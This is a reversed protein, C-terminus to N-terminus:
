IQNEFLYFPITNLSRIADWLNEHAGPDHEVGDKVVKGNVVRSTYRLRELFHKRIAMNFDEDDILVAMEANLRQISRPDMNLTGIWTYQHDILMTKAHVMWLASEENEPVVLDEAKMYHGNNLFLDFGMRSFDLGEKLTIYNVIYENSAKKANLLLMVNVNREKLRKFVAEEAKQLYFYPMELVVNSQSAHELMYYFVGGTYRHEAIKWDPGDALFRINNVLYFPEAELLRSGIRQFEERMKMLRADEENEPDFVSAFHAAVKLRKKHQRERMMNTTQHKDRPLNPYFKPERPVSTRESEWFYDFSRGIAEAIPGDILVDRDMFNYKTKLDYYEDGMNRGGIIAEKRDVLLIKRHNRHSVRALNLLMVDNYYKFEIGKAILAHAIYNDLSKSLAFHDVIIRIKIDPKESKRKVLAETFIRAADSEHYIFYEVDISTEAKAILELRAQMAATGTELTKIRHPANSEVDVPRAFVASMSILLAGILILRLFEM